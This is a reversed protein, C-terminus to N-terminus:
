SQMTRCATRISSRRLPKLTSKPILTWENTSTWLLWSHDEVGFLTQVGHVNVSPSWSMGAPLLVNEFQCLYRCSITPLPKGVVLCLDGSICYTLPQLRVFPATETWASLHSLEFLGALAPREEGGRVLSLTPCANAPLQGAFAATPVTVEILSEPTQWDLAPLTAEAVHFGDQVLWVGDILQFRKGPLGAELKRLQDDTASFRVWFGDSGVAVQASTGLLPGIWQNPLDRDIRVFRTRESM